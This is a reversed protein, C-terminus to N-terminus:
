HGSNNEKRRYYVARIKRHEPCYAYGETPEGCGPYVCVEAKRMEWYKEKKKNLIDTRNNHYYREDRDKKSM